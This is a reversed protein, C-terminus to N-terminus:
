DVQVMKNFEDWRSDTRLYLEKFFLQVKSIIDEMCNANIGFTFEFSSDGSLKFSNTAPDDSMEKALDLIILAWNVEMFADNFNPGDDYLGGWGSPSFGSVEVIGSKNKRLTVEEDMYDGDPLEFDVLMSYEKGVILEELNNTSKIQNKM